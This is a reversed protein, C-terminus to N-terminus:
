GKLSIDCLLLNFAQGGVQRKLDGSLGSVVLSVSASLPQSVVVQSKPLLQWYVLVM